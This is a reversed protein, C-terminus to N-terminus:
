CDEHRMWIGEEEDVGVRKDGMGPGLPCCFLIRNPLLTVQSARPNLPTSTWGLLFPPPKCLHLENFATGGWM